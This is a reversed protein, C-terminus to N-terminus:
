DEDFLELKSPDIELRHKTFDHMTQLAYLGGRRFYEAERENARKNELAHYKRTLDINHKHMDYLQPSYYQMALLVGGFIGLVFAGILYLADINM